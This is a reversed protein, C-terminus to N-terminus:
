QLLAENNMPTIYQLNARVYCEEISAANQQRVPFLLPSDQVTVKLWPRGNSMVIADNAYNANQGNNLNVSGAFAARLVAGPLAQALIEGNPISRCNLYDSQSQTVVVWQENGYFGRNGRVIATNFNGSSDPEPVESVQAKAAGVMTLLLTTAIAGVYKLNM